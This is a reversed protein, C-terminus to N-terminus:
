PPTPGTVVFCAPPRLMVQAGGLLSEGITVDGGHARAVQLVAPCGGRGPSKGRAPLGLCGPLRGAGLRRDGGATLTEYIDVQNGPAATTLTPLSPVPAIWALNDTNGEYEAQLILDERGAAPDLVRIARQAPKWVDQFYKTILGGDARVNRPVLFPATLALITAVLIVRDFHDRRGV